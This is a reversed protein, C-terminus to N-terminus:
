GIGHALELARYGHSPLWHFGPASASNEFVTYAEVWLEFTYNMYINLGWDHLVLNGFLTTVVSEYFSFGRLWRNVYQQTIVNRKSSLLDLHLLKDM